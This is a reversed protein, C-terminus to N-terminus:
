SKKAGCYIVGDECVIMDVAIDYADSFDEDCMQCSYAVGIKLANKCKGFFKDYYGKGYGIRFGDKNYVLAPVLVIDIKAEDFAQKKIPEYIGYNGITIDLFSDLKSAYMTETETNTVPLLLTKGNLLADKTVVDVVAENKIANYSMVTSANKYEDLSLIKGCIKKSADACFASDLASRMQKYEKRIETKSRM